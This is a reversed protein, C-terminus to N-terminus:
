FSQWKPTLSCSADSPSFFSGIENCLVVLLALNAAFEAPGPGDCKINWTLYSSLFICFICWDLNNALSPSFSVFWVRQFSCRNMRVLDQAMLYINAGLCMGTTNFGSLDSKDPTLLIVILSTRKWYLRDYEKNFCSACACGSWICAIWLENQDALDNNYSFLIM